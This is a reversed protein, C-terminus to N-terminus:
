AGQTFDYLRLGQQAKKEALLALMAQETAIVNGKGDKETHCYSGDSLRFQDLGTLLTRDGRVFRPDTEPDLGLSYLAILVQCITEANEAGYAAFTCRDTMQDSLYTLAAEIAERAEDYPVLAQLAMATIDPDSSGPLLGFGGDPEQQSLISELIEERSHAADEPVSYAGADLAILAFILSNLGQSGLDGDYSYTGDAILDVPKGQADTGFSTPDGGLALVTLAIRQFETPKYADLTGNKAYRDTVNQELAALYGSYDDQAGSLKLAIAMWDFSSNGAPCVDQHSLIKGRVGLLSRFSAASQDLGTLSATCGALLVLCLLLCLPRLFRKM